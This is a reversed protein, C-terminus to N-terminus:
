QPETRRQGKSNISQRERQDNTQPHTELDRRSMRRQQWTFNAYFFPFVTGLLNM